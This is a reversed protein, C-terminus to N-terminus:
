SIQSNEKKPSVTKGQPFTDFLVYEVCYLYNSKQRIRLNEPIQCKEGPSFRAACFLLM